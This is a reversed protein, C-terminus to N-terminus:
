AASQTIFSEIAAAPRAGSSRAVERGGKFVALTPISQIRFREGLEPVAETNVKVILARGSLRTAAKELEPAMARCPGCWPAWFDVAIPVGAAAIAADFTAEDGIEVAGAPPTLEIKCKGCRIRQHLNGYRQRNRTGCSPCTVVVGSADASLAM